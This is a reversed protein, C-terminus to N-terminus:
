PLLSYIAGLAFTSVVTLPLGDMLSMTLASRAVIHPDQDSTEGFGSTIRSRVFEFTYLYMQMANAVLYVFPVFCFVLSVYLWHHGGLTQALSSFNFERAFYSGVLGDLHNARDYILARSVVYSLDVSTLFAAAIASTMVGLAVFHYLRIEKSEGYLRSRLFGINIIFSLWNAFAAAIPFMIMYCLAFFITDNLKPDHSGYDEVLGSYIITLSMIPALAFTLDEVPRRMSPMFLIVVIVGLFFYVYEARATTLWHIMIFGASAIIWAAIRQSRISFVALYYLIIYLGVYKPFSNDSMGISIIVYASITPVVVERWRFENKINKFSVVSISAVIGVTAVIRYIDRGFGSPLVSDQTTGVTGYIVWLALISLIYYGYVIALIKDFVVGSTYSGSLISDGPSRFLFREIAAINQRILDFYPHSKQDHIYKSRLANFAREPRTELIMRYSQYRSTIRYTIVALPLGFISALSGVDGLEM